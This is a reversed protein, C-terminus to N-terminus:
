ISSVSINGTLGFVLLWYFSSTYSLHVLVKALLEVLDASKVLSVLTTFEPNFALLDLIPCPKGTCADLPVALHLTGRTMMILSLTLFRVVM